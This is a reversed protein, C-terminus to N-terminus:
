PNLKQNVIAMDEASPEWDFRIDVIRDEYCILYRNLWWGEENYVRYAEVAGWTSPDESKLVNRHGAPIEGDESEDMERYMQDKCWDYLLPFKVTTISYKLDPLEGGGEIDWNGYLHADRHGLLFTQSGSNQQIYDDDDVDYFNSVLLPLSAADQNAPIWDNRGAAIGVYVVASILIMPLIACAALTLTRNAGRSAKAKKLGLKIGNVLFIVCFFGISLVVAIWLLLPDDAAFLNAFWWVVGVMLVLMIFYQFITTSPTDMFIGDRAAKKAKSYWGFYAILELISIAFLCLYALGTIMRSSSSLYDIPVFCIGALSYGGFLISLVLLFYYSPLYNKKCARHLTDVEMIPDTELPIPAEKENYFM